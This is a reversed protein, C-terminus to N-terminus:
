ECQLYLKRYECGIIGICLLVYFIGFAMINEPMVRNIGEVMGYAACVSFGCLLLSRVGFAGPEGRMWLMLVSVAATLFPIVGFLFVVRGGVGLRMALCALVALMGVDGVGIFLLQAALGGRVSFRTACEVEFMRYRISRRLIPVACAAIVGSGGCLFRAFLRETWEVSMSGVSGSVDSSWLSTLIGRISDPRVGYISIFVACLFALVMGQLFWIKWALFKVQKAMFGEFSLPYRGFFVPRVEGALRQTEKLHAEFSVEKEVALLNKWQEKERM